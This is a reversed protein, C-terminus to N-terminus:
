LAFWKPSGGGEEKGGWAGRRAGGRGGRPEEALAGEGVPGRRAPLSFSVSLYLAIRALCDACSFLQQMHICIHMIVVCPLIAMIIDISIVIIILIVVLVLITM